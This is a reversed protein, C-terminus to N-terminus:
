PQFIQKAVFDELPMKRIRQVIEGLLFFNIDSYLFATGPKSQLKEECAKTIATDRGHWDSKTEIDGRLGSTHTLLQRVTIAEKGDGKFEAIYTQVPADLKVEGREILLMIAPTCAVVKTLSAADFITDETMPEVGPVVTRNGYAKHYTQSRHELWLVGGPCGKEAIALDIAQDIQLLKDARFGEGAGATSIWAILFLHCRVAKIIRSFLGIPIRGPSGSPLMQIM